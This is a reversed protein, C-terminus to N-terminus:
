EEPGGKAALLAHGTKRIGSGEQTPIIDVLCGDEYNGSRRQGQAPQGVEKSRRDNTGGKKGIEGLFSKQGEGTGHQATEKEREARGEKLSNGGKKKLPNKPSM